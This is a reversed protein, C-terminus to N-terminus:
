LDTSDGDSSEISTGRVKRRVLYLGEENHLEVPPEGLKLVAQGGAKARDMWTMVVSGCELQMWWETLVAWVRERVGASMRPATYVGPSIELMCSALFGRFRTAVDRTIVVTM